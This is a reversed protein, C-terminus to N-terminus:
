VDEGGEKIMNKAEKLEIVLRNRIYMQQVSSIEYQRNNLQSVLAKLSSYYKPERGISFNAMAGKLLCLDHGVFNM